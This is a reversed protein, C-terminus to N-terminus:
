DREQFGSSQDVLVSTTLRANQLESYIPEAQNGAELSWRERGSAKRWRHGNGVAIWGPFRTKCHSKYSYLNWVQLGHRCRHNYFKSRRHSAEWQSALINWSVVQNTSSSVKRWVHVRYNQTFQSPRVGQKWVGDSFGARQEKGIDTVSLSRAQRSQNYTLQDTDARTGISKSNHSEDM